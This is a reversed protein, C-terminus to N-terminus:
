FSRKQTLLRWGKEVRNLEIRGNSPVAPHQRTGWRAGETCGRVCVCVCWGEGTRLSGVGNAPTKREEKDGRKIGLDTMPNLEYGSNPLQLFCRSGKLESRTRTTAEKACVLLSSRFSLTNKSRDAFYRLFWLVPKSLVRLFYNNSTCSCRNHDVQKM